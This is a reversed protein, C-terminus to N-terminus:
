EEEPIELFIRREELADLIMQNDYLRPRCDVFRFCEWWEKQTCTEGIEKIINACRNEEEERYEENERERAMHANLLDGFTEMGKCYCAWVSEGYVKEFDSADRKIDEVSHRSQLTKNLAARMARIALIM